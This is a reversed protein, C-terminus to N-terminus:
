RSSESLARVVRALLAPDFDSGVRIRAAGIEITLDAARPAPSVDASRPVVRVFRPADVPGLRSSWWRLTGAAFDRGSVFEDATLGSERWARVRERWRQETTEPTPRSSAALARM